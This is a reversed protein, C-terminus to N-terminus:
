LAVVNPRAVVATASFVNTAALRPWEGSRMATALQAM